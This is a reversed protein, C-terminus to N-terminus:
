EDVKTIEAIKSVLAIRKDQFEDKINVFAELSKEFLDVKDVEKHRYITGVDYGLLWISFFDMKTITIKEDATDSVKENDMKNTEKRDM